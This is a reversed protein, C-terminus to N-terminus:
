RAGAAAPVPRLPRPAAPHAPRRVRRTPLCWFLWYSCCQRGQWVCHQGARMAGVSALLHPAQAQPLLGFDASGSAEGEELMHFRLPEGEGEGASAAVADVAGAWLGRRHQVAPRAFVQEMTPREAPRAALMSRILQWLDESYAEPIRELRAMLVQLLCITPLSRALSHSHVHGLQWCAATPPHCHSLSGPTYVGAM